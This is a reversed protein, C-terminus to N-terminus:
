NVSYGDAIINQKKPKKDFSNDGIKISGSYYNM